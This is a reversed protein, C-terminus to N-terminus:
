CFALNFNPHLFCSPLCTYGSCCISAFLNPIERCVAWVVCSCLLHCGALHSLCRTQYSPDDSANAAKPKKLLPSGRNPAAAIMAKLEEFQASMTSDHTSTASKLSDKFLDAIVQFQNGTEARLTAFENSAAEMNSDIVQRQCDLAKELRSVNDRLESLEKQNFRNFKGSSSTRSPLRSKGLHNLELVLPFAAKKLMAEKFSVLAGMIKSGLEGHTPSCPPLLM